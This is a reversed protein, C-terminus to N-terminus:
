SAAFKQHRGLLGIRDLDGFRNRRLPEPGPDGFV